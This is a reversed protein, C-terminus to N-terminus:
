YYFPFYLLRFPVCTQGAFPARPSTSLTLPSGDAQRPHSCSAKERVDWWAPRRMKMGMRTQEGSRLRLKGRGPTGRGRGM